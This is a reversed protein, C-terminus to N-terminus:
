AGSEIEYIRSIIAQYTVDTVSQVMLLPSGAARAAAMGNPHDEIVLCEAPQFGLQRAAVLYMEPDPKARVVDQNSLQLDLWPALHSKEMMLTVTDKVSNSAVALKYGADKLRALAYEHIFMPACKLHITQLTIAQKMENIFQHLAVPLGRDASLMHLKRATPLGDFTTEHDHRSIQYGFMSLAQNLADYHWEKADILVGDMDFVVAKIKTM